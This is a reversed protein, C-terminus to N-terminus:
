RGLRTERNATALHQSVQQELDVGIPRGRQVSQLSPQRRGRADV